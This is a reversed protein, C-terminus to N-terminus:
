LTCRAGKSDSSVDTDAYSFAMGVVTDNGINETDLGVAIGFTDADYGNIGDRMDQDATQGFVQGWMRM